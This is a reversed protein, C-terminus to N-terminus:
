GLEVKLANLEEMTKLKLKIYNEQHLQNLEKKPNVKVVEVQPTSKIRGCTTMM